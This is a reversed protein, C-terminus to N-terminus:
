TFASWESQDRNGNLVSITVRIIFPVGATNHARVPAGLCTLSYCDGVAQRTNECARRRGRLVSAVGHGNSVFVLELREGALPRM